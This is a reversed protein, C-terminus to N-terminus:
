WSLLRTRGNQLGSFAAICGRLGSDHPRHGRAWIGLEAVISLDGSAYGERSTGGYVPCEM